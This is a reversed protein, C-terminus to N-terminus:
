QISIIVQLLFSLVLLLVGFYSITKFVKAKRIETQDTRELALFSMGKPNVQPPFGFFFTLISGILGCSASWFGLDTLLKQIQQSIIQNPM